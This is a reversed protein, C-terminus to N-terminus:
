VSVSGPKISHFLAFLEPLEKMLVDTDETECRHVVLKISYNTFLNKFMENNKVMKAHDRHLIVTNINTSKAYHMLLSFINDTTLKYIFVFRKGMKVYPIDTINDEIIKEVDDIKVKTLQTKDNISNHKKVKQNELHLISKQLQSIVSEYYTDVKTISEELENRVVDFDDDLTYKFLERENDLISKYEEYASYDDSHEEDYVTSYLEKLVNDYDNNSSVFAEKVRRNLDNSTLSVCPIKEKAKHYDISDVFSEKNFEYERISMNCGIIDENTLDNLNSMLARLEDSDGNKKLEEYKKQAVKLENQFNKLLDIEKSVTSIKNMIHLIESQQNKISDQKNMHLEIAKSSVDKYKPYVTTNHLSFRMIYNLYFRLGIHNDDVYSEIAEDKYTTTDQFTLTSSATTTEVHNAVYVAVDKLIKKLSFYEPKTGIPIEFKSITRADEDILFDSPSSSGYVKKWPLENGFMLHVTSAKFPNDNSKSCGYKYAFFRWNDNTHEKDVYVHIGSGVVDEFTEQSVSYSTVNMNIHKYNNAQAYSLINSPVHDPIFLVNKEVFTAVKMMSSNQHKNVVFLTYEDSIHNEDVCICGALLSASPKISSGTYNYVNISVKKRQKSPSIEKTSKNTVMTSTVVTTDKNTRGKTKSVTFSNNNSKVPMMRGDYRPEMFSYLQANPINDFNLENKDNKYNIPKGQLLSAMQHSQLISVAPNTTAPKNNRNKNDNNRKRSNKKNNNNTKNSKKSKRSNKRAM